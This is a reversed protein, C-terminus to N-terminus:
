TGGMKRDGDVDGGGDVMGNGMGIGVGNGSVSERKMDGGDAGWGEAPKEIGANRMVKEVAKEMNVGGSQRQKRSEGERVLEGALVESFSRFGERKGNIVANGRQALEVFERTYIDPNRGEDVYDILEPPLSPLSSSSQSPQSSQQLTSLSTTLDIMKEVLYPHTEDQYGHINMQIDFLNQIVSKLADQVEGMKPDSVPVMKGYHEQEDKAGGEAVGHITSTIGGNGATGERSLVRGQLDRKWGRSGLM